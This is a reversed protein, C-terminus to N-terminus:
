YLTLKNMRVLKEELEGKLELEYEFKACMERYLEGSVTEAEATSCFMRVM